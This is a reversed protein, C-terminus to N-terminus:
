GELYLELFLHKQEPTQREYKRVIQSEYGQEARPVNRVRPVRVSVSSMATEISREPLFGNRYGKFKVGRQYRHRELYDNVEEELAKALLVRAQEHLLAELPSDEKITTMATYESRNM